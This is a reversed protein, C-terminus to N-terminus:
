PAPLLYLHYSYEFVTLIHKVNQRDNKQLFREPNHSINYLLRVIYKKNKEIRFVSM